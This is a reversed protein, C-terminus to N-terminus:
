VCVSGTVGPDVASLRVYVFVLLGISFLMFMTVTLSESTRPMVSHRSAMTCVLCVRCVCACDGVCACARLCLYRVFYAVASFLTAALWVHRRARLQQSSPLSSRNFLIRWVRGTRALACACTWVGSCVCVCVCCCVCAYVSACLLVRVRLSPHVCSCVCVHVPACVACVCVFVCVHVARLVWCWPAAALPVCGTGVCARVQSRPLPRVAPRRRRPWM